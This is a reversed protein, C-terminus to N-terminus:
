VSYTYNYTYRNNISLEIDRLWIYLQFLYALINYVLSFTRYARCVINLILVNVKIYQLTRNSVVRRTYIANGHSFVNLYM